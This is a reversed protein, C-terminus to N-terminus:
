GVRANQFHLRRVEATLSQLEVKLDTNESRLNEVETHLEALRASLSENISALRGVEKRLNDIINLEGEARAVGVKEEMMKRIFLRLMFVLSLAFLSGGAAVKMWVEAESM